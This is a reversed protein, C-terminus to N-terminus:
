ELDFIYEFEFTQGIFMQVIPDPPGNKPPEVTFKFELKNENQILSNLNNAIPFLAPLKIKSNAYTFGLDGVFYGVNDLM